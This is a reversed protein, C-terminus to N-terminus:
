EDVPGKRAAEVWLDVAYMLAGDIEMTMEANSRGDRTAMHARVLTSAAVTWAAWSLAASLSQGMSRAAKHAFEAVIAAPSASEGTLWGEVALVDALGKVARMAQPLTTAERCDQACMAYLWPVESVVRRITDIVIRTTVDRRRRDPWVSWEWYANMLRVMQATRLTDRSWLADNLPTLDPWIDASEAWPRGVAANACEIVSADGSGEAHIGRRLVGGFREQLVTEFESFPVM